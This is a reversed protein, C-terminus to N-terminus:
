SKGYTPFPFDDWSVSEFNESPYPEVVLWHHDIITRTSTSMEQEFRINAVFDHGVLCL